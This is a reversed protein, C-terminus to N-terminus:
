IRCREALVYPSVTVKLPPSFKRGRAEIVWPEVDEPKLQLPRIRTIKGDMVHVHVPGGVTCNTYLRENKELPFGQGSM